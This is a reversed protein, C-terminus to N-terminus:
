VVSNIFVDMCDHLTIFYGVEFEDIRGPQFYEGGPVGLPIADTHGRDGYVTILVQACTGASPLENTTVSVSWKGEAYM